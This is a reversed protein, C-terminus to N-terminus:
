ALSMFSIRLVRKTGDKLRFSEALRYGPIAVIQEQSTLIKIAAKKEASVKEQMLFDSIKKKGMMGFPQFIDGAQWNRCILPMRILDFDAYLVASGADFSVDSPSCLDLVIVGDPSTWPVKEIELRVDELDSANVLTLHEANSWLRYEGSSISKGKQAHILEVAEDIQRSSFGFPKLWHYLILRPWSCNLLDTKFISNVSGSKEFYRHLEVHVTREQLLEGERFLSARSAISQELNPNLQLLLPLVQHRLYNRQYDDTRNSSDERWKLNNEEAFAILEKRHFSLLPRFIKDNLPLMGRLSSWMGGRMFQFLITEVQDNLHHATLVFKLHHERQLENFWQYRIERAAEQVGNESSSMEEKANLFFAKCGLQHALAKVLLEDGDSEKGRLGYNVHAM